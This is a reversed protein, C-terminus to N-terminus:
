RQSRVAVSAEDGHCVSGTVVPMGDLSEKPMTLTRIFFKKHDPIKADELPISCPQSGSLALAPGMQLLRLEPLNRQSDKKATPSAPNVLRGIASTMPAPLSSQGAAITAGGALAVGFLLRGIKM